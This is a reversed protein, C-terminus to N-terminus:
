LTLCTCVYRFFQPARVYGDARETAPVLLSKLGKRAQVLLLRWTGTIITPFLAKIVEDLKAPDDNLSEPFEHRVVLDNDDLKATRPKMLMKCLGFV